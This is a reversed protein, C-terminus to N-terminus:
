QPVFTMEILADDPWSSDGLPPEVEHGHVRLSVQRTGYSMSASALAGEAKFGMKLEKHGCWDRTLLLTNIMATIVFGVEDKAIAVIVRCELRLDGLRRVNPPLGPTRIDPVNQLLGKKRNTLVIADSDYAAQLYPMTYLGDGGVALTVPEGDGIIKMSLGDLVAAGEAARPWMRFHLAAQPALRHFDDFAEMGKVISRYNNMEPSKVGEVNVKNVDEAQAPGCALSFSLSALACLARKREWDLKKMDNWDRKNAGFRDAKVHAAAV